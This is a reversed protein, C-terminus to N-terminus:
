KNYMWEKSLEVPVCPAQDEQSSRLSVATAPPLEVTVVSETRWAHGDPYLTSQLITSRPVQLWQMITDRNGAPQGRSGGACGAVAAARLSVTRISLDLPRPTETRALHHGVM